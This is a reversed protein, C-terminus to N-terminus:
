ENSEGLKKLGYYNKEHAGYTYYEPKNVVATVSEVAVWDEDLVKSAGKVYEVIVNHRAALPM